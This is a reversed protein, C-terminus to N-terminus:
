QLRYSEAATLLVVTREKNTFSACVLNTLWRRTQFGYIMRKCRTFQQRVAAYYIHQWLYKVGMYSRSDTIVYDTSKYNAFDFLRRTMLKICNSHTFADVQVFACLGSVVVCLASHLGRTTTTPIHALVCARASAFIHRTMACVVRAM